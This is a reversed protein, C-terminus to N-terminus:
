PNADTENQNIYQSLEGHMDANLLFLNHVRYSIGQPFPMKVMEPAEDVESEADNQLHVTGRFAPGPKVEEGILRLVHGDRDVLSRIIQTADDVDCEQCFANAEQNTHNTDLFAKAANNLDHIPSELESPTRLHINHSRGSSKNGIHMELTDLVVLAKERVNFFLSGAKLDDWHDNNIAHPKNDWTLKAPRSVRVDDVWKLIDSRRQKDSNTENGGRLLREYLLSVSESSLPILPSLANRLADTIAGTEKNSVWLSLHQVVTRKYPHYDQCATEVFSKGADSSSFANFRLSYSEVFGLAYLAQVTSMRMPQTVYFNRQRAREFRFDDQNRGRLKTSGRMRSDHAWDNSEYAIWCALAEIANAVEINQVNIGQARAQEAVIIGLTSLLLQKGYWVGGLGPVALDNFQRVSAGLGLTRTRRLSRLFEPGLLGWGDSDSM